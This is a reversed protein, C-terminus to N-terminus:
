QAMRPPLILKSRPRAFAPRGERREAELSNPLVAGIINTRETYLKEALVRFDMLNKSLLVFLRNMVTSNTQTTSGDNEISGRLWGGARKHCEAMAMGIPLWRFDGRFAALQRCCGEILLLNERLDVYARGHESRVALNNSAEVAEGISEKLRDYIEIESTRSM